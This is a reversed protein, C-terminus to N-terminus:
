RCIECKMMNVRFPISSQSYPIHCIGCHSATPQLSTTKNALESIDKVTKVEPHSSLEMPEGEVGKHNDPCDSYKMTSSLEAAPNLDKDFDQGEMSSTIMEKNLSSGQLRFVSENASVDGQQLNIVTATGIASLVCM